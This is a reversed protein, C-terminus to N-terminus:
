QLKGLILHDRDGNSPVKTITKVQMFRQCSTLLKNMGLLYLFIGQKNGCIMLVGSIFTELKFDSTMEANITGITNSILNDNQRCSFYWFFSIM